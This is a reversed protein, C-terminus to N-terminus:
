VKMFPSIKEGGNHVPSHTPRTRRTRLRPASVCRQHRLLSAVLINSGLCSERFGLVSGSLRATCPQSSVPSTKTKKLPSPRHSRHLDPALGTSDTLSMLSTIGDASSSTALGKQGTLRLSGQDGSARGKKHHSCEARHIKIQRGTNARRAQGRRSREMRSVSSSRGKDGLGTPGNRVTKKVTAAMQWGTRRCHSRRGEM